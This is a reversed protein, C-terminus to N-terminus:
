AEKSIMPLVGMFDKLGELTEKVPAGNVQIKVAEERLDELIKQEDSGTRGTEEYIRSLLFDCLREVRAAFDNINVSRTM